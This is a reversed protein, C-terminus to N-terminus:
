GVLQRLATVTARAYASRLIATMHSLSVTVNQAELYIRKTEWWGGNSSVGEPDVLVPDDSAYHQWLSSEWPRVKYEVYKLGLKRAPDGYYTAAAWETGLPVVQIFTAGARMFVVHTMAAGHVGLMADCESLAAYVEVMETTPTPALVQVAFGIEEALAVVQQENLLIRSGHRRSIVVLKPKKVFSNSANSDEKILHVTLRPLYAAHLMSQFGAMSPAAARAHPARSPDISLEDHIRLGVTIEPFCHVRKDSALDIVPYHTLQALIEAYKSIWWDHYELLLLVVQGSAHQHATLFLPILGDNFEHYVNGTYGGTSFLIAPVSHQVDCTPHRHAKHHDHLRRLKVADITNMVSDEWKRTYPKVIEERELAHSNDAGGYVVVEYLREAQQGGLVRVDGRGVCVDTRRHSRDCYLAPDAQVAHKGFQAGAEVGRAEAVAGSFYRRGTIILPGHHQNAPDYLALYSSSRLLFSALLLVLLLTSLCLFNRNRKAGANVSSHNSRSSSIILSNQLVLLQKRLNHIM